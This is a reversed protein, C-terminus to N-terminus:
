WWLCWLCCINPLIHPFPPGGQHSQLNAHSPESVWDPRVRQAEMFRKPEQGAGRDMSHELCPYQLTNGNRVGLSRGLGPVSGWRKFRRCQCASEKGSTGNTYAIVIVWNKYIGILLLFDFQGRIWCNWKWTNAWFVWSVLELLHICEWTWLLMILWLKFFYGLYPLLRLTM